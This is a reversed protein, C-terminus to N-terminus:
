ENVRSSDNFRANWFLCRAAYTKKHPFVMAPPLTQIPAFVICCTTVFTGKQGNAGKCINCANTALIKQPTPGNQNLNTNFLHTIKGFSCDLYDWNKREIQNEKWSGNWWKITLQRTEIASPWLVDPCMRYLLRKFRRRILNLFM